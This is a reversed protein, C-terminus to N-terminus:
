DFLRLQGDTIPRRFVDPNYAKRSQTLGYKRSFVDFTQRIQQAFPGEGRQRTGFNADYLAGGRMQRILSEVHAARDPFHRQLWDTFLEKLQHPLRLVVFGANTAGADAAAELLKPLERDNIAPLIPATMVTVRIGADTLRKITALRHAPSSARPEMIASLHPDLSTLSVAVGVANYHSLEQLLDIDRTILRNKTVISVPHRCEAFVELCGRTIRHKAEVPQYCDTVGAMMVNQPQWRPNALEKRLLKPADYKAIIKTEFDIGCSYGLREHDPRAYCYVCGHECGRYPNLSWGYPLDPSNVKNLITRTNDAIVQTQPSPHSDPGEAALTDRYEGLVHLRVSEYRNGPNLGAGRGKDPVAPLGDRYTFDGSMGLM